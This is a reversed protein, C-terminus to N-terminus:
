STAKFFSELLGGGAYVYGLCYLPVAIIYIMACGGSRFGRLFAIREARKKFILNAALIALELFLVALCIINVTRIIM